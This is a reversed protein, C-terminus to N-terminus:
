PTTAGCNASLILQGQYDGQFAIHYHFCSLCDLVTLVAAVQKNTYIIPFQVLVARNCHPPVYRSNGSLKCEMEILVCMSLTYTLM